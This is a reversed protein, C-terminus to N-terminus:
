FEDKITKEDKHFHKKCFGHALYFVKMKDLNSEEFYDKALKSHKLIKVKDEYDDSFVVSGSVKVYNYKSDTACFCIHPNAELQTEIESKASTYFFMGKECYFVFEFPRVDPIGDITTALSGFKNSNLFEIIDEMKEEMKLIM